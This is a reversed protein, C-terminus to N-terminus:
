KVVKTLTILDFKIYTNTEDPSVSEIKYNTGKLTVGLTKNIRSDHRVGILISDELSTGQISYSQNLTRRRYGAKKSFQTVPETTRGGNVPNTVTQPLTFDVTLPM